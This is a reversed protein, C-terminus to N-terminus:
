LLRPNLAGARYGRFLLGAESGPPIAAGGTASIYAKSQGTMAAIGKPDDTSTSFGPTDRTASVGPQQQQSPKAMKLSWSLSQELLRSCIAQHHERALRFRRGTPLHNVLAREM